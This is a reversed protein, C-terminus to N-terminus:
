LGWREGIKTEDRLVFSLLSMEKRVKLAIGMDEGSVEESGRDLLVSMLRAITMQKVIPLTNTEEEDRIPCVHV